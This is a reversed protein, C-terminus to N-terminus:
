VRDWVKVLNEAFLHKWAVWWQQGDGAHHLVHNRSAYTVSCFWSCVAIRLSLYNATNYGRYPIRMQNVVAKVLWPKLNGLTEVHKRLEAGRRRWIAECVICVKMRRWPKLQSRGAHFFQQNKNQARVERESSRHWFIDFPLDSLSVLHFWTSTEWLFCASSHFCAITHLCM